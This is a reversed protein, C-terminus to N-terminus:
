SNGRGINVSIIKFIVEAGGGKALPNSTYGCMDSPDDQWATTNNVSFSTVSRYVEQRAPPGVVGM